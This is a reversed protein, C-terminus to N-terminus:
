VEPSRSHHAVITEWITMLQLLRGTWLRTQRLVIGLTVAVSSPLVLSKLQEVSKKSEVVEAMEKRISSMKQVVNSLSDLSQVEKRLDCMSSALCCVEADSPNFPSIRRLNAAAFIPMKLKQGDIFYM